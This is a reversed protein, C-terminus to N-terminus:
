FKSAIILAFLLIAFALILTRSFFERVYLGSLILLEDNLNSKILGGGSNSKYFVQKDKGNTLSWEKNLISRNTFLYDEGNAFKVIAKQELPNFLITALVENKNNVLLTEQKLSFGITKFIFIGSQTIAIASNKFSLFNLSYKLLGDGFVQYKSDFTDKNWSFDYQM